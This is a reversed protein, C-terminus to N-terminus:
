ALAVFLGEMAVGGLLFLISAPLAATKYAPKPMVYGSAPAVRLTVKLGFLNFAWLRKWHGITVSEIEIGVLRAALLHGAEHIIILLYSVLLGVLWLLATEYPPSQYDMVERYFASTLTVPLIPAIFAGFHLVSHGASYRNMAAYSSLRASPQRSKKGVEARRSELPPKRAHM